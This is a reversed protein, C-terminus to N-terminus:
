PAFPCLIPRLHQLNFPNARITNLILQYFSTAQWMRIAGYSRFILRGRYPFFTYLWPHFGHYFFYFSVPKPPMKAGCPIAFIIVFGVRLM